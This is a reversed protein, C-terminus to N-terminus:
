MWLVNDASLHEIDVGVLTVSGGGGLDISLDSGSVSIHRVLSDIDNIDSGNIGREIQIRDGSAHFNFIQDRGGGSRLDFINVMGLASDDAVGQVFGVLGAFEPKSLISNVVQPNARLFDDFDHTKSGGAVLLDDDSGGDLHNHGRDSYGGGILLDDGSGGALYDDGSGGDLVDNRIGGYLSDDSDSGDLLSNHSDSGHAEHSDSSSHHIEFSDDDSDSTEGGRDDNSSM